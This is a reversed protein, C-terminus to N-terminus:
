FVSSYFTLSNNLHAISCKLEESRVTPMDNRFQDIVASITLKGLGVISDSCLLKTIILAVARFLWCRREKVTMTKHKGRVKSAPFLSIM